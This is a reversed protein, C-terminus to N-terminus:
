KFWITETSVLIKDVGIDNIKSPNKKRYINKKEQHKQRQFEPEKWENKYQTLVFVNKKYYNSLGLLFKM